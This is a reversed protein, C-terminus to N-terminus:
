VIEERIRRLSPYRLEKGTELNDFPNIIDNFEAVIWWLRADRYLIDAINRLNDGSKVSYFLDGERWETNIKARIEYILNDEYEIIDEDRYRTIHQAM